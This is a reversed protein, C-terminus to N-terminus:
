VILDLHYPWTQQQTLHPLHPLYPLHPLHPLHPSLCIQLSLLEIISTKTTDRFSYTMDKPQPSGFSPRNHTLYDLGFLLANNKILIYALILPWTSLQPTSVILWYAYGLTFLPVNVQISKYISPM